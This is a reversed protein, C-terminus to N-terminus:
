KRASDPIIIGSATKEDEAAMPRVLVRDGAPKFSVKSGKSNNKM